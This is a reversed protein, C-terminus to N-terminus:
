WSAKTPIIIIINVQLNQQKKQGKLNCDCVSRLHARLNSLIPFGKTSSRNSSFYMIFSSFIRKPKHIESILIGFSISHIQKYHFFILWIWNSLQTLLKAINWAIEYKTNWTNWRRNELDLKHLHRNITSRGIIYSHKEVMKHLDKDELFSFGLGQNTKLVLTVKRSVDSTTKHWANTSPKKFRGCRENRKSIGKRDTM